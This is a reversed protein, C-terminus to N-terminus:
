SQIWVGILDHIKNRRVGELENVKMAIASLVTLVADHLDDNDKRATLFSDVSQKILSLHEYGEYTAASAQLDHRDLYSM